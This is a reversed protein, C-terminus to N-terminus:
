RLVRLAADSLHRFPPEIAGLLALSRMRHQILGKGMAFKLKFISFDGKYLLTHSRPNTWAGAKLRDKVKDYLDTGPLPYPVTYSLYDLNLRSSENVTRTLTENTEGPYGLIFFAGTKLGSKGALDIARRGEDFTIRKKMLKLMEDSGSELGFFLRLCGAERMMELMEKSIGDARSLCEWDIRLGREIILECVQKTRARDYTFCDDGVWIRDYGRAAIDEMEDVVGAASRATVKSSFVPKSCFGCTHPCGRTTMMSAVTYGYTDRWYTMYGKNDFLDRAPMPLDDLEEVRSRARTRRVRGKEWFAL